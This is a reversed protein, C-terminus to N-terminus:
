KTQQFARQQPVCVTVQRTTQWVKLEIWRDLSIDCTAALILRLISYSAVLEPGSCHEVEFRGIKSKIVTYTPGWLHLLLLSWWWWWATDLWFIIRQVVLIHKPRLFLLLISLLRELICFLAVHNRMIYFAFRVNLVTFVLLDYRFCTRHDIQSNCYTCLFYFHPCHLVDWSLTFNIKFFSKCAIM